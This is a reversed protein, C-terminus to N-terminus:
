WYFFDEVCLSLHFSVSLKLHTDLFAFYKDLKDKLFKELDIKANERDNESFSSAFANRKLGDLEPILAVYSNGRKEVFYAEFCDSFLGLDTLFTRNFKTFEEIIAAQVPNEIVTGGFSAESPTNSILPSQSDQKVLVVGKQSAFLKDINDSVRDFIFIHQIVRPDSLCNSHNSLLFSSTSTCLNNQWTQRQFPIFPM